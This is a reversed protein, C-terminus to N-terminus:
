SQTKSNSGSIHCFKSDQQIQNPKGPVLTIISVKLTNNCLNRQLRMCKTKKVKIGKEKVQRRQTIRRRIIKRNTKEM